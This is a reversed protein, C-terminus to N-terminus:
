AFRGATRSKRLENPFENPAAPPAIIVKSEVRHVPASSVRSDVRRFMSGLTTLRNLVTPSATGTDRERPTPPDNLLDVIDSSACECACQLLAEDVVAGELLLLNVMSANGLRVASLLISDSSPWTAGLSARSELLQKAVATHGASMATVLPVVGSDLHADPHVGSVSNECLVRVVASHGREVACQLLRIGVAEAVLDQRAGLLAEVSSEAGVVVADSLIVDLSADAPSGDDLLTLVYQVVKGHNALVAIDLLERAGGDAAAAPQARAEVLLKAVAASGCQVSCRLFVALEEVVQDKVIVAAFADGVTAPHSKMVHRANNWFGGAVFTARTALLMKVLEPNDGSSVAAELADRVAKPKAETSQLLLRTADVSGASAACKLALDGVGRAGVAIGAQLLPRLSDASGLEAARVLAAHGWPGEFCVRAKLLFRVHEASRSEVAMLLLNPLDAAELSTWRHFAITLPRLKMEQAFLEKTLRGYMNGNVEALEDDVRLGAGEAWSGGELTKVFARHDDKRNFILGLKGSDEGVVFKLTEPGKTVDARANVLTQLSLVEGAKVAIKLLSASWPGTALELQSNLLLSVIDHRRDQIATQLMKAGRVDNEATAGSTLMLKVMDVNRKRVALFLPSPEVLGGRGKIDAGADILLQATQMNGAKAARCLPTLDDGSAELDARAALMVRVCKVAGHTACLALPSVQGLDLDPNVNARANLLMTAIDARDEFAVGALDFGELEAESLSDLLYSVVNHRGFSCAVDLAEDWKKVGAASMLHICKLQGEAAAEYAIQEGRHQDMPVTHLITRLAKWNGVRAAWQAGRLAGDVDLKLVEDRVAVLTGREIAEFLKGDCPVQFAHLVKGGDTVKQLRVACEFSWKDEALGTSPTFEVVELSRNSFMQSCFAAWDEKAGSHELNAGDFKLTRLTGSMAVIRALAMTGSVPLGSMDTSITVDREALISDLLAPPPMGKGLTLLSDWFRKRNGEFAVEAFFTVYDWASYLAYLSQPLSIALAVPDVTKLGLANQRIAIYVQFLAWPFDEVIGEVSLRIKVYAEQQPTACNFFTTVTVYFDTYILRLVNPSGGFAEQFAAQRARRKVPDCPDNLLWWIVLVTALICSAGCAAWYRHGEKWLSWVMITDVYPDSALVLARMNKYWFLMPGHSCVNAIWAMIFSLYNLCRERKTTQPPRWDNPITVLNGDPIIVLTKSDEEVSHANDFSSSLEVSVLSALPEAAGGHRKSNAPASLRGGM